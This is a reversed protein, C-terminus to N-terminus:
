SPFNLATLKFLLGDVLVTDFAKALDLFDAGTLRKKGFNRTVRQVLLALQLSTSHKPRFGFQDDRLLRCGSIESLIRSLLIKEFLKGITGLLSIPRYPSPLEPDKGPKLIPIIRAHM